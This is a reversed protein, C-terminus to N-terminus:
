RLLAGPSLTAGCSRCKSAGIKTGCEQCFKVGEQNLHGCQPCTRQEKARQEEQRKRAEEAQVQEMKSQAQVLSAQVSRLKSELEPYQGSSRSLAQKGIEAYIGTEQKRLDNLDSQAQMKKVEPDDQPMLGTLGKM